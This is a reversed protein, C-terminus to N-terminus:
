QACSMGVDRYGYNCEYHSGDAALHANAPIFVPACRNVTFHYGFDCAWGSSTDAPHANVPVVVPSCSDGSRVYGIDCAWGGYGGTRHAHLPMAPMVCGTPDRQYGPPCTSAVPHGVTTAPNSSPCGLRDVGPPCSGSQLSDAQSRSGVTTNAAAYQSTTPAAAPIANYSVEPINAVPKGRFASLFSGLADIQDVPTQAFGSQLQALLCFVTVLAQRCFTRMKM